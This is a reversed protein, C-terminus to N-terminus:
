AKRSLIYLRRYTPPCNFHKLLPLLFLLRRYLSTKWPTNSLGLKLLFTWLMLNTNGSTQLDWAPNNELIKPVFDCSPLGNKVHEQLYSFHRGNRRFFYEDLQRDIRESRKGCPFSLYIKKDAVRLLEKIALPRDREALHELMDVSLVYDFSRAPFPLKTVSGKVPKLFRNRRSYDFGLDVGTVYDQLYPTIGEIESGVELITEGIQKLARLEKVIPLYRLAISLDWEPYRRDLFAKLKTRAFHLM